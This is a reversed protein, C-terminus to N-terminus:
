RYVLTIVGGIVFLLVFTGLAAITGVVFRFGITKGINRESQGQAKGAAFQPPVPFGNAMYGPPPPPAQPAQAQQQRAEPHQALYAQQQEYVAYPNLPPGSPPNSV